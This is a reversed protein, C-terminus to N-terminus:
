TASKEGPACWFTSDGPSLDALDYQEEAVLRSELASSDSRSMEGEGFFGIDIVSYRGMKGFCSLEDASITSPTLLLRAARRPRFFPPLLPDRFGSFLCFAVSILSM